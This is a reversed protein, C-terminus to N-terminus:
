AMKLMIKDLHSIHQRSAIIEMAFHLYRETTDISEHGMLSMLAYIDVHGFKDYQDICYNTAFNHRLKHCSLEFPLKQGLKYIFQKLTNPTIKEGRRGVFVYESEHPCISLYQLLFRKSASGLPVLREKDGKGYVRLINTNFNVDLKKLRCVESQRLGSDYMLAIICYNRVVLWESEAVVNQFMLAIDEDSYIRPTTKPSKPVVISVASVDIGYENTLWVVFIKMDRIYSVCTAKAINRNLLSEIYRDITLRTLNQINLDCGVYAVFIGIHQSYSEISKDTLGALWKDYIFKDLCEQITM